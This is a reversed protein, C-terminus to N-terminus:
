ESPEFQLFISEKWKILEMLATYSEIPSYIKRVNLPYFYKFVFTVNKELEFLLEKERVEDRDFSNLSLIIDMPSLYNM